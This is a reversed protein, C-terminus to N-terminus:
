GTVDEPLSGVVDRILSVALMARVKGESRGAADGEISLVPRGPRATATAFMAAAAAASRMETEAEALLRRATEVHAIYAGAATDLLQRNARSTATALAEKAATADATAKTATEKLAPRAAVQATNVAHAADHATQTATTYTDLLEGIDAPVHERRLTVVNSM